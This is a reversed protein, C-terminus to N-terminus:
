CLMPNKKSLTKFKEWSFNIFLFHVKGRWDLRTTPILLHNATAFRRIEADAGPDVKLLSHNSGYTYKLKVVIHVPNQFITGIISRGRTELSFEKENGRRKSISVPARILAWLCSREKWNWRLWAAFCKSSM